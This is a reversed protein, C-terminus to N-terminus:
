AQFGLEEVQSRSRSHICALESKMGQHWLLVENSTWVVLLICEHKVPSTNGRCEGRWLFEPRLGVARFRVVPKRPKPRALCHCLGCAPLDPSTGRRFIFFSNQTRPGQGNGDSSYEELEPLIRVAIPVPRRSYFAVLPTSCPPLCCLQEARSAAKKLSNFRESIEGVKM